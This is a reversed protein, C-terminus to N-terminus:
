SRGQIVQLVALRQRYSSRVKIFLAQRYSGTRGLVAQLVELNQRDSGISGLVTRVKIFEAQGDSDTRGLVAQLM